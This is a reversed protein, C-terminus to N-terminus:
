AASEELEFGAARMQIRVHQEETAKVRGKLSTQFERAFQAARSVAEDGLSLYKMAVKPVNPQAGFNEASGDRPFDGALSSMTEVYDKFAEADGDVKQYFSVLKERLNAGLPKDRLLEMAEDVAAKEADKADRADLRAKLADNEAQLKAFNLPAGKDKMVEAGPTPAPAVEGAAEEPEAAGNQASIAELIRGMAEVSISGDEIAKCVADVDVVNGGGDEMNEGDKEDSDDGDAFNAPDNEPKKMNDEDTFRFLLAARGSAAQGFGLLPDPGEGRYNLSFETATAVLGVGTDPIAGDGNQAAAHAPTRRDDVEGAFLMPLELYPKEHDLLALGDINPPGEPDFIEVSRYPYRMRAVEDALTEDTFILDAFIALVTTGKFTMPAAKTIRFVGAARVSDNMETGPEHHRCHLPPLYGDVERQIAASVAKSVWEANFKLDGRSCEAFIPVDHYVTKGDDKTVRFGGIM